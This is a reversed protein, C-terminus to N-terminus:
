ARLISTISPFMSPSLQHSSKVVIVIVALEREVPLSCRHALRCKLGLGFPKSSQAKGVMAVKENRSYLRFLFVQEPLYEINGGLLSFDPCCPLVDGADSNEHSGLDSKVLVAM